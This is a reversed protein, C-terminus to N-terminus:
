STDDLCVMRGPESPATSPWRRSTPSVKWRFSFTGSSIEMFMSCNSSSAKAGSPMEYQFEIKQTACRAPGVMSFMISALASRSLARIRAMRWARASYPFMYISADEEDKVLHPFPRGLVFLACGAFAHVLTDEKAKAKAVGDLGDNEVANGDSCP